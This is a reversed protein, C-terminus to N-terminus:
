ANSRVKFRWPTRDSEWYLRIPHFAKCPLTAHLYAAEHTMWDLLSGDPPKMPDDRTDRWLDGEYIVQRRGNHVFWCAFFGGWPELKPRRIHRRLATVQIVQTYDHYRDRERTARMESAEAAYIEEEDGSVSAANTARFAADFREVASTISM